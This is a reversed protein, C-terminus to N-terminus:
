PADPRRLAAVSRQVLSVLQTQRNLGTKQLLKRVHTRATNLSVGLAKAAEEVTRGQTLLLAVATEAATFGFLEVLVDGDVPPQAEPDRVFVLAAATKLNRFPSVAITLPLRVGRQVAFSEQPVPACALERLTVSSQVAALLRDTVDRDKGVVRGNLMQLAGQGRLIQEARPCAQMLKLDASVVMTAFDVRRATEIALGAQLASREMRSRVRLARQYHEAWINALTRHQETFPAAHRPRHIGFTATTGDEMKFLGGVVHFEDHPLCWENYFGTKEFESPAVLESGLCVRNLGIAVARQVWVDRARWYRAEEREKESTIRLNETFDLLSVEGDSSRLHFVASPADFLSALQNALGSWASDDEAAEYM